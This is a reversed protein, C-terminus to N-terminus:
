GSRESYRAEGALEGVDGLLTIRQPLPETNLASRSFPHPILSSPHPILSSPHPILSSPHPILSSPHPILSSPHPILSSPHPILSSHHPHLLIFSHVSLFSTLTRLLVGPVNQVLIHAQLAIKVMIEELLRRAFPNSSSKQITKPDRQCILSAKPWKLIAKPALTIGFCDL